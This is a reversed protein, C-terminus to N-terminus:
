REQDNILWKDCTLTLIEFIGFVRTYRNSTPVNNKCNMIHHQWCEFQFVYNFLLVSFLSDHIFILLAILLQTIGDQKFVM